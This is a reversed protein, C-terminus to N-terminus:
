EVPERAAQRRAELEKVINQHTERGLPYLLAFLIGVGLLVAPIPGIALRIGLLASAPQEAAGSIYGTAKLMLLVLPLSDCGRWSM